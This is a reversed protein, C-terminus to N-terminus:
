DIKKLENDIEKLIAEVEALEPNNREEFQALEQKYQDLQNRLQEAIYLKDGENIKSAIEYRVKYKEIKEEITNRRKNIELKKTELERKWSQLNEAKDM